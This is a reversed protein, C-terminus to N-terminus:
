RESDVENSKLPGCIKCCIREGVKKGTQDVIEQWFWQHPPCQKVKVVIQNDHKNKAALQQEESYNFLIRLLIVLIIIAFIAEM